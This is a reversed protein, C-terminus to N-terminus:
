VRVGERRPVTVQARAHGWYMELFPFQRVFSAHTGLELHPVAIAQELMHLVTSGLDMQKRLRFGHLEGLTHVQKCLQLISRVQNPTPRLGRAFFMRGLSQAQGLLPQRLLVSGSAVHAARKHYDISLKFLREAEFADHQQIKSAVNHIYKGCIHTAYFSDPDVLESTIADCYPLLMDTSETFYLAPAPGHRIDVHAPALWFQVVFVHRHGSMPAVRHRDWSRWVTVDGQDLTYNQLLSADDDDEPGMRRTQFEGGSFSQLPSLMVSVTLVSMFDSHWGIEVAGGTLQTEQEDANNYRTSEVARPHLKGFMGSSAIGWGAEAELEMAIRMLKDMLARGQPTAIHAHLYTASHGMSRESKEGFIRTNNSLHPNSQDAWVRGEIALVQAIDTSSFGNKRQAASRLSRTGCNGNLVAKPPPTQTQDNSM